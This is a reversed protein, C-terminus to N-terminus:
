RCVYIIHKALVNEPLDIIVSPFQDWFVGGHSMALSALEVLALDELTLANDSVILKFGDIALCIETSVM